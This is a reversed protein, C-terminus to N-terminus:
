WRGRSPRTPQVRAPPGGHYDAPLTRGRSFVDARAQTRGYEDEGGISSTVGWTEPNERARVRPVGPRSILPLDCRLPPGRRPSKRGPWSVCPGARCVRDGGTHQRRCADLGTPGEGEGRKGFTGPAIRVLASEAVRLLDVQRPDCAAASRRMASVRDGSRDRRTIQCARQVTPM